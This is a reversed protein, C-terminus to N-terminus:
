AFSPRGRYYSKVENNRKYVEGYFGTKKNEETHVKEWGSPIKGQNKSYINQSFYKLDENLNTM